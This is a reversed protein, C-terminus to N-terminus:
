PHLFMRPTYVLHSCFMFIHHECSLTSYRGWKTRVLNGRVKLVKDHSITSFWQVDYFYWLMQRVDILLILSFDHCGVFNMPFCFYMMSFWRVVNFILLFFFSCWQVGSIIIKFIHFEIFLLLSWQFLDTFIFLLWQFVVFLMSFWHFDVCSTSVWNFDILIKRFDIVIM